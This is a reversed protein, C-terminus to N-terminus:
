SKVQAFCFVPSPLHYLIPTQFTNLCVRPRVPLSLSQALLRRSRLACRSAIPSHSDSKACTRPSPARPFIQDLSSRRLHPFVKHLCINDSPCASSRPRRHSLTKIRFKQIRLKFSLCFSKASVRSVRHLTPDCQSRCRLRLSVPAHAAVLIRMQGFHLRDRRNLNALRFVCASGPPSCARLASIAYMPLAEISIFVRAQTHGGHQESHSNNRRLM